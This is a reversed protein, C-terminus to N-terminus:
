DPVAVTVTAAGTGTALTITVGWLAVVCTPWFTERMAVVSSALPFVNVPRTTVQALLAADIAVTEELPTTVPTVAPVAVM